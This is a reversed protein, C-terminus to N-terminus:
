SAAETSTHLRSLRELYAGLEEDRRRPNLEAVTPRGNQAAISSVKSPDDVSDGGVSEEGFVSQPAVAAGKQADSQVRKRPPNRGKEGEFPAVAAGKRRTDRWGSALAADFIRDVDLRYVTALGRGGKEAAVAKVLGAYKLVRLRGQVTRRTLSSEAALRELGPRSGAGDHGAYKALVSLVLKESPPIPLTLVADVLHWSM